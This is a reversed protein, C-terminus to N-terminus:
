DKILRKLKDVTEREEKTSHPDRYFAYDLLPILDLVEEETLLVCKGLEPSNHLFM